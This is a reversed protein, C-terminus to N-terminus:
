KNKFSMRYCLFKYSSFDLMQLNQYILRQRRALISPMKILLNARTFDFFYFKWFLFFDYSVVEVGFRLKNMDGNENISEFVYM